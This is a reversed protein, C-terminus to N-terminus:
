MPAVTQYDAEQAGLVLDTIGDGNVDGATSVSGGLWGGSAVGPITFGNGGNLDNLDFSAPFEQM